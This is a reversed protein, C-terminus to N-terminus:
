LKKVFEDLLKHVYTLKHRDSRNAEDFLEEVNLAMGISLQAGLANSLNVINRYTRAVKANSVTYLKDPSMAADKMFKEIEKPNLKVTDHIKLLDVSKSIVGTKIRNIIAKELQQQMGRDFEQNLKTVYQRTVYEKLKKISSAFAIPIEAKQFEHRELLSGFAAYDRMNRESIGLLEAVERYGMHVEEALAAVASAKEIATWGEHQEQIHFQQVLRDLESQSEQIVAPVEKLRLETAARYRREGDVLIYTGGEQKEIVMPNIIGHKRVSKILEALKVPDFNKRPQIPDPRILSLPVMQVQIEKKAM